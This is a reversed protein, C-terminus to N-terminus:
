VKRLERSNQESKAMYLCLLEELHRCVHSSFVPEPYRQRCRILHLTQTRLLRTAIEAASWFFSAERRDSIRRLFTCLVILMKCGANGAAVSRFLYPTQTKQIARSSLHSRNIIQWISKPCAEQLCISWISDVSSIIARSCCTCLQWTFTWGKLYDYEHPWCLVSVRLVKSLKWMIENGQPTLHSWSFFWNSGMEWGTMLVWYWQVAVSNSQLLRFDCGPCLPLSIFPSVTTFDRRQGDAERRCMGALPAPTQPMSTNMPVSVRM